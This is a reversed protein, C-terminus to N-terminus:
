FKMNSLIFTELYNEKFVERRNEHKKTFIYADDVKRVKWGDELANMIFMTKQYDKKNIQIFNMNNLEDM